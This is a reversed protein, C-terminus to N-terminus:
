RYNYSTTSSANELENKPQHDTTTQPQSNNATNWADILLQANAPIGSATKLFRFYYVTVVGFLMLLLFLYIYLMALRRNTWIQRGITVQLHVEKISLVYL